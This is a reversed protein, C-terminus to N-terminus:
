LSVGRKWPPFDDQGLAGAKPLYKGSATAIVLDIVAEGIQEITKEGTMIPGADLDIIDPMRRALAALILGCLTVDVWQPLGLVTVNGRVLDM